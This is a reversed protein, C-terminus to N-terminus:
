LLFAAPRLRCKVLHLQDVRKHLFNGPVAWHANTREITGNDKVFGQALRKYTVAPINRSTLRSMVSELPTTRGAPPSTITSSSPLVSGFTLGWGSCNSAYLYRWKLCCGSPSARCWNTVVEGSLKTNPYPLWWHGPVIKM